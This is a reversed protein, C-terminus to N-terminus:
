LARGENTDFARVDMSAIAGSEALAARFTAMHPMAFHRDLAAQDRWHELIVMTAPDLLDRAYAYHLCGDEDRSAEIMTTLVRLTAEDLDRALRVTGNVQIM